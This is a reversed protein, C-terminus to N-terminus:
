TAPSSPTGESPHPTGRCGAWWYRGTPLVPTCPGSTACAASSSWTSSTTTPTSARPPNWGSRTPAACSAAPRWTGPPSRKRTEGLPPVHLDIYDVEDTTLLFPFVAEVGARGGRIEEPPRSFIIRTYRRLGDTGTYSLLVESEKVGPRHVRGRRPRRMGRVEFIDAFDSALSISLRVHVPASHYNRIYIREVLGDKILRSRRISIVDQPIVTRGEELIDPNSLHINAMYGRELSSSLFLPQVGELRTELTSLFRTDRYYLGLGARNGHTMDGNEYTYLFYEGEKIIPSHRAVESVIFPLGGAGELCLAESRLKPKAKTEEM